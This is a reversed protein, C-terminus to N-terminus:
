FVRPNNGFNIQMFNQNLVTVDYNHSWKQAVDSTGAININLYLSENILFIWTGLYDIDRHHLAVSGDGNAKFISEAFESNQNYAYDM